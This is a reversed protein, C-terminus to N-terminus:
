NTQQRSCHNLNDQWCTDGREQKVLVTHFRLSSRLYQVSKSFCSHSFTEITQWRCLLTKIINWRKQKNLTGRSSPSTARIVTNGRERFKIIMLEAVRDREGQPRENYTSCWKTESGLGFFSWHGAPFKQM